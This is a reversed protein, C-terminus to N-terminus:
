DVLKIHPNKLNKRYLTIVGGIISILEAHLEEVLQNAIIEKEKMIPQRLDVKILEHKTIAKDLLDIVESTIENKGIQYRAKCTNALAKLQKIQSKKLM